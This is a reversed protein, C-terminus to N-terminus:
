AGARGPGPDMGSTGNGSEGTTTDHNGTGIHVYVHAHHLLLALLQAVQERDPRLQDVLMMARDFDRGAVAVILRGACRAYPEAREVDVPRGQNILVFGPMADPNRQLALRTPTAVITALAIAVDASIEPDITVMTKCLQVTADPGECAIRLMAAVLQHLRAAYRADADDQGPKPDPEPRPRHRPERRHKTM